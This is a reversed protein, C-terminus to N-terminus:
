SRVQQNTAEAWVVSRGKRDRLMAWLLFSYNALDMLTDEVSEDKVQATAGPQVLTSIRSLKDIMRVMFGQETSCVGMAEARRFNAFPDGAGAYDSNKAKCIEYMRATFAQHQKLLEERTM